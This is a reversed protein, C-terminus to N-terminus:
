PTRQSLLAPWLMHLVLAENQHTGVTNRSPVEGAGNGVMHGLLLEVGVLNM